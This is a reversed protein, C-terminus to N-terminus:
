FSNRINTSRSHVVHGAMSFVGESAASTAMMCLTNRALNSLQFSRYTTEGNSSLTAIGKHWLSKIPNFKKNM